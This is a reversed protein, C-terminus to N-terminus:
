KPEAGLRSGYLTEGNIRFIAKVINGRADKVFKIRAYVAKWFFETESAPFLEVKPEGDFQGFLHNGDKTIVLIQGEFDYRGLV